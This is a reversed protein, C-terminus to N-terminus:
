FDSILTVANSDPLLYIRLRFVMSQGHKYAICFQQSGDIRIPGNAHRKTEIQEENKIVSYRGPTKDEQLESLEVMDLIGNM